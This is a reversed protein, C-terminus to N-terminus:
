PQAPPQMPPKPRRRMMVAAVVAIIAVVIIAGGILLTNDTAPPTASQVVLLGVMGSRNPYTGGSHPTCYYQWSGADGAVATYNWFFVPRSNDLTVNLFSGGGGQGTVAPFQPATFTHVTPLDRNEIRLRLTNGVDITITIQTSTETGVHWGINKAILTVSVDAAPAPSGAFSLFVSAVLAISALVAPTRNM